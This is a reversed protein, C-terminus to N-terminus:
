YLAFTEDLMKKLPFTREIHARLKEGSARLESAHSFTDSLKASLLVADGAPFLCTADGLTEPIGGADSGIAPVGALGAELLVYGVAETRSPLLFVDFAKMYKWADETFGLFRIGEANEAKELLAREEDGGGIIIWQAAHTDTRKWADIGTDIGKNRNLEAVTGVWIKGDTLSPDRRKLEARAEERSLYPLLEIGHRVVRLKEAPIHWSEIRKAIFDSVAITVDTMEVTKKQLHEFLKRALFNRPETFAWGHSTFILRPVRAKKAARAGTYGAKSSNLHVIDPKLGEFLRVLEREATHEEFPSVDRRLGNVEFTRIGQAEAREALLGREGYALMPTFGYEKAHTMLDWVYRQAGGWVARTIVYLVTKPPEM